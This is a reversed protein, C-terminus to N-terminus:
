SFFIKELYPLFYLSIKFHDKCLEHSHSIPEFPHTETASKPM